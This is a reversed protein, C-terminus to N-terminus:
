TGVNIPITTEAATTGNQIRVLVAARQGTTDTLWAKREYSDYLGERTPTTKHPRLAKDIEAEIRQPLLKGGKRLGRIGCRFVTAGPISGARMMLVLAVGALKSSIRTADGSVIWHSGTAPDIYKSTAM